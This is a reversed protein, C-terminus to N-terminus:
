LEVERGIAWAWGLFVLTLLLMAWLPEQFVDFVQIGTPWGVQLIRWSPLLKGSIDSLADTLLWSVSISGSLFAVAAPIGRRYLRFREVFREFLTLWGVLPILALGGMYLGTQASLLLNYPISLWLRALLDSWVTLMVIYSAWVAAITIFQAALGALDHYPSLFLVEPLRDRRRNRWLFYFALAAIGLFGGVSQGLTPDPAPPPFGRGPSFLRPWLYGLFPLLIAAAALFLVWPRVRRWELWLFGRM